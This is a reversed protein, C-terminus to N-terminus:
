KQLFSCRVHKLLNQICRQLLKLCVGTDIHFLPNEIFITLIFGLPLFVVCYCFCLPSFRCLFMINKFSKSAKHHFLTLQLSKFLEHCELFFIIFTIHLSRTEQTALFCSNKQGRLTAFNTTPLVKESCIIAEMIKKEIIINIM